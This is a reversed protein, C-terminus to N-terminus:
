ETTEAASAEAAETAEYPTFLVDAPIPQLEIGPGEYQIELGRPGTVWYYDVVISHLGAKLTIPSTEFEDGTVADMAAVQKGAVAVMAGQAARVYFTYEGDTPVSIYGDFRVTVESAPVRPADIDITELITNPLGIAKVDFRLVTGYGGEIARMRIGPQMPGVPEFAGWTRPAVSFTLEEGERSVVVDVPDSSKLEMVATVYHLGDRIDVDGVRILVDGALLGADHANGWVRQIEASRTPHVGIGLSYPYDTEDGFDAWLERRIRSIPIAMAVTQNGDDDFEVSNIVGIVEGSRNFVAGGSYGPGIGDGVIEMRGGLDTNLRGVHGWAYTKFQGRPQGVVLVEEGAVPADYRALQVPHLQEDAKIRAICLDSGRSFGMIRCPWYEESQLHAMPLGSEPVLYVHANALIYGSEHLVVGSGCYWGQDEFHYVRWDVVSPLCKALLAEREEDTM